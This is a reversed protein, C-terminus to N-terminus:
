SFTALQTWTSSRPRASGHQGEWLLLHLLGHGGEGPGAVLVVQQGVAVVGGHGGEVGAGASRM